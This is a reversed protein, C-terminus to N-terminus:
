DKAIELITEKLKNIKNQTFANEQEELSLKSSQNFEFYKKGDISSILNLAKERNNKNVYKIIFNKILNIYNNYAKSHYNSNTAILETSEICIMDLQSLKKNYFDINELIKLEDYNFNNIIKVLKELHEVEDIYDIELIREKYDIYDVIIKEEKPLNNVIYFYEVLADYMNYYVHAINISGKDIKITYKEDICKCTVDTNNEDIITGLKIDYPEEYKLIYLIEKKYLSIREYSMKDSIKSLVEYAAKKKSINKEKDKGIFQYDFNTIECYSIWEKNNYDYQFNYKISGIIQKQSLEQLKNVANDLNYDVHINRSSDKDLLSLMKEAAQMEADKIRKAIARTEYNKNEISCIVEFEGNIEQSSYLLKLRYLDALEKLKTKPDIYNNLIINELGLMQLVINEVIDIDKNCDIWIAGVIAEFLDEKVNISDKANQKIDGKTMILYENLKLYDIRSSLMKKDSYYSVFRSMVGENETVYIQDNTFSCYKKEITKILVYKVITDGFFELQENGYVEEGLIQREKAFSERTFAQELLRKNNFIYNLKKEIEIISDNTLLM